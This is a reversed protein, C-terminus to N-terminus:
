APRPIDCPVRLQAEEVWGLHSALYRTLKEPRRYQGVYIGIASSGSSLTVKSLFGAGPVNSISVRDIDEWAISQARPGSRVGRHDLRALLAPYAIVFLLLWLPPILQMLARFFIGASEGGEGAVVTYAAFFVSATMALVLLFGLLRLGFFFGLNELRNNV